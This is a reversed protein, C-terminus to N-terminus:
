CQCRGAFSLILLHKCSFLSLHVLHLDEINAPVLCCLKESTCASPDSDIMLPALHVRHVGSQAHAYQSLDHMSFYGDFISSFTKM